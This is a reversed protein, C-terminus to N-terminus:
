NTQTLKNCFTWHLSSFTLYFIWRLIIYLLLFLLNVYFWLSKCLFDKLRYLRFSFASVSGGIELIIFDVFKFNNYIYIIYASPVRATLEEDDGTQNRWLVVMIVM